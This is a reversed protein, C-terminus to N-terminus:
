AIRGHLPALGNTPRRRRAAACIGATVLLVSAGPAPIVSNIWDAYARVDVDYFHTIPTGFERGSHIGIVAWRGQADLAFTPGGSDGHTVGSEYPTAPTTGGDYSFRLAHYDWTGADFFLSEPASNTGWRKVGSTLGERYGGGEEWGGFGFGALVMEQSSTFDGSFLPYYGPLDRDVEVIRLDALNGLSDTYTHTSLATYTSGGLSLLGMHVNVHQATLIHRPSIAVCTGFSSSPSTRYVYDWNLGYPSTAPNSTQGRPSIAWAGSGAALVGLLGAFAGSFAM